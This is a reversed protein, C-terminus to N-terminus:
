SYWRRWFDIMIFALVTTIITVFFATVWAPIGFLTSFVTFLNGLIDVSHWLTSLAGVGASLLGISIDLINNFFGGQQGSNAGEKVNSADSLISSYASNASSNVSNFLPDSSQVFPNFFSFVGVVLVALIVTAIFFQRANAQIM